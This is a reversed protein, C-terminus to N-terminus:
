RIAREIERRVDRVVEARFDNEVSKTTHWRGRHIMAQWDDDMVYRDYRGYRTRATGDAYVLAYVGGRTFTPPQIRWSRKLKETRVYSSNPPPAPYRQLVTHIKKQKAGLVPRLTQDLRDLRAVKGLAEDMGTIEITM